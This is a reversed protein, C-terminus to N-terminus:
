KRYRRLVSIPHEPNHMSVTNLGSAEAKALTELLTEDTNYHAALSYVYNLDRSHTYHTLLNGGLIVRSVDLKGIKGRPLAGPSAAPAPQDEGRSNLALALGASSLITEKVFSRRTMEPQMLLQKRNRLRHCVSERSVYWIKHDKDLRENARIRRWGGSGIRPSSLM